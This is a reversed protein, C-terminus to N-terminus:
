GVHEVVAFSDLSRVNHNCQLSEFVQSLKTSIIGRRETSRTTSFALKAGRDFPDFLSDLSTVPVVFGLTCSIVGVTRFGHRASRSVFPNLIGRQSWDSM